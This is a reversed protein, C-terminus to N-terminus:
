RVRKICFKICVESYFLLTFACNWSSSNVLVKFIILYMMTFWIAESDKLFPGLMNKVANCM